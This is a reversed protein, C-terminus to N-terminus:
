ARVPAAEQDKAIDGPEDLDGSLDFPIFSVWSDQRCIYIYVYMCVYM